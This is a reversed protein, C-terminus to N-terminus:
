SSSQAHATCSGTSRRWQDRPKVIVDHDRGSFV